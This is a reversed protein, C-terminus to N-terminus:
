YQTTGLAKQLDLKSSLVQNLATLYNLQTSRLDTEAIIVDLYTKIGATYQIRLTNYVDEALVLNEKLANYEALNGKYASLAQVYESNVQNTLDEISWKLRLLELNANRINYVRKRGQFIPVTVQLGIASSPYVHNYLNEFRDNQFTPIYNGFASITPYYSWKYYKVSAQSLSQQTKLLQYEVRNNIQVPQLTDISVDREMQLSDFVVSFSNQEPYGMLQKLAASRADVQESARKRDGRTNNLAIQARKYDIKDVLGGKYQNYADRLSRELRLINEDLVKVQQQSLLLNYFAKSVEVVVDIRNSITTQRAQKRVDGATQGALLLGSNFISQNVTFQINSTNKVGVKTPRKNGNADPFFSTPLQLAHQLNYTANVQPYWESLTTKINTEAIDEDILSQHILPQHRLAYQICDRLNAQTLLSDQKDVQAQVFDPSVLFSMIFLVPLLPKM